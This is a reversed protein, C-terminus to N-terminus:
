GHSTGQVSIQKKEINFYKSRGVGDFVNQETHIDAGQGTIGALIERSRRRGLSAGDGHERQEELEDRDISVCVHGRWTIPKGPEGARNGLRPGNDEFVETRYGRQLYSELGCLEDAPNAFVYHRGPDKNVMRPGIGLQNLRRSPPDVRTGSFKGDVKRTRPGPSKKSAKKRSAKKARKQKPTAAAYEAIADDLSEAETTGESMLM